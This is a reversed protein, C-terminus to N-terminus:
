EELGLVIDFPCTFSFFLFTFLFLFSLSFFSSLFHFSLPFFSSLFHFSRFSLFVVFFLIFSKLALSVFSTVACLDKMEIGADALAISAGNMAAAITAMFGDSELVTIFVDIFSKPYLEL